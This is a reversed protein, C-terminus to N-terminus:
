FFYVKKRNQWAPRLFKQYGQGAWLRRFIPGGLNSRTISANWTDAYGRSELLLLIKEVL